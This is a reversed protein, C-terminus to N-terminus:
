RDILGFQLYYPFYRYVVSSVRSRQFESLAFLTGLFIENITKKKKDSRSKLISTHIKRFIARLKIPFIFFIWSASTAQKCELCTYFTRTRKKYIPAEQANVKNCDNCMRWARRLSIKSIENLDRLPFAVTIKSLIRCTRLFHSNRAFTDSRKRCWSPVRTVRKAVIKGETGDDVIEIDRTMKAFYRNDSTGKKRRGAKQRTLVRANREYRIKM